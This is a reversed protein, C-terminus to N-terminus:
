PARDTAPALLKLQDGLVEVYLPKGPKRGIRIRYVQAGGPGLPGRLEIIRGRFHTPGAASLIEVRDGLKWGEATRGTEDSM